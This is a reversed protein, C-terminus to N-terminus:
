DEEPPYLALLTERYDEVIQPGEGSDNIVSDAFLDFLAENVADAVVSVMFGRARLADAPDEGRLLSALCFRQEPTLSPAEDSADGDEAPADATPACGRDAAPDAVDAAPGAKETAADGDEREEETLIKERTADSASRIRDLLSFDFSVVRAEAARTEELCRKIEKNIIQSLLKTCDPPKTEFPFDTANRLAGDICRLMKGLEKSKQVGGSPAVCTWRGNFCHYRCIPSVTYSFNKEVRHPDYYVAGLFPTYLTTRMPGFLSEPYPNKRHTSAYKVTERYVGVAVNRFLPANARYYRSHEPDYSSFRRMAAFLIEDSSGQPTFLPMLNELTERDDEDPYLERPLDFCVVLDRLWRKAQYTFAEDASMVGILDKLREYAELPSAVGIQNILEFTLVMAYACAAPRKDGSRFATRWSFYTRLQPVSMVRYTPYFSRFPEEKEWRDEFREM